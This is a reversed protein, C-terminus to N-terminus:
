PRSSRYRGLGYETIATDYYTLYHANFVVGQGDV